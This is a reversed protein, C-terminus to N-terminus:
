RVENILEMILEVSDICRVDFGLTRFQKSRYKQMPSPKEGPAKLEVFIIKGHPLLVIRDPVGTMGPSVFKLAKGGIKEIEKILRKENVAEKM